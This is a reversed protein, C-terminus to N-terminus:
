TTRAPGNKIFDDNLYILITSSATFMLKKHKIMINKDLYVEDCIQRLKNQIIQRSKLDRNTPKKQM